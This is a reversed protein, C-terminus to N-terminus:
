PESSEGRFFSRSVGLNRSVSLRGTGASFLISLFPFPHSPLVFLFSFFSFLSTHLIYPSPTLSSILPSLYFYPHPPPPPSAYATADRGPRGPYQMTNEKPVFSKGHKGKYQRSSSCGRLFVYPTALTVTLRRRPWLPIANSSFSLSHSLTLSLSFRLHLSLSGYSIPPIVYKHAEPVPVSAFKLCIKSPFLTLAM